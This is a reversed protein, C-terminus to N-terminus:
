EKNRSYIIFLLFFIIYLPITPIILFYLFECDNGLLNENWMKIAMLVCGLLFTAISYILYKKSKKM